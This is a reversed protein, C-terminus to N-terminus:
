KGELEKILNVNDKEILSLSEINGDFGPDPRYWSKESFYEKYDENTFVYGHRAFIENRIYALEEKSYDSLESETLLRIDSDYIIYETNKNDITFGNEIKEEYDKMKVAAETKSILKYPKTKGDEHIFKVSDEGIVEINIDYYYAEDYNNHEVSYTVINGDVKVDLVKYSGMSTQHAYEIYSDKGFVVIMPYLTNTDEVIACKGDIIDLANKKIDDKQVSTEKLKSDKTLVAKGKVKSTCGMMYLVTITILIVKIYKNIKNM